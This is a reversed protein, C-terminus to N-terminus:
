RPVGDTVTALSRPALLWNLPGSARQERSPSAAQHQAPFAAFIDIIFTGVGAALIAIPRRGLPGTYRCILRPAVTSGELPSSPTLHPPSLSTLDGLAEIRESYLGTDNGVVQLM